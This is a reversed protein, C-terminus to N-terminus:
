FNSKIGDKHVVERLYLDVVCKKLLVDAQEVEKFRKAQDVQMGSYM